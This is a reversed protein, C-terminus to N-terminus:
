VIVNGYKGCEEMWYNGEYVADVLSLLFSMRPRIEGFCHKRIYLAAYGRGYEAYLAEIRNIISVSLTLEV